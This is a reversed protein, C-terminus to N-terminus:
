AIPRAEGGSVFLNPDATLVVQGGAVPAGGRNLVTATASLSGGVSTSSSSLTLSVTLPNAIVNGTISGSGAAHAGAVIGLALLVMAIFRTMGEARGPVRLAQAAALRAANNRHAGPHALDVARPQLPVDPHPVVASRALDVGRGHVHAQSRRSRRGARGQRE